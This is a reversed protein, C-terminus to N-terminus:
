LGQTPPTLSGAPVAPVSPTLASGSIQTSTGTSDTTTQTAPTAPGLLQFSVGFQHQNTGQIVGLNSPLSAGSVAQISQLQAQLSILQQRLYYSDYVKPCGVTLGRQSIATKCRPSNQARAALGSSLSCLLFIVSFWRIPRMPAVVELLVQHRFPIMMCATFVGAM